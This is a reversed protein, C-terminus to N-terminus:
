PREVMTMTVFVEYKGDAGDLGDVDEICFEGDDEIQAAICYRLTGSIFWPQVKCKEQLALVFRPLFFLGAWVFDCQLKLFERRQM